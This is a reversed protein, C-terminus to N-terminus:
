CARSIRERIIAILGFCTPATKVYIKINKKFCSEQADTPLYFVRVVEVTVGNRLLMFCEGGKPSSIHLRASVAARHGADHAASSNTWMNWDAPWYGAIAGCEVMETVVCFMFTEAFCVAYMDFLKYSEAHLYVFQSRRCSTEWAVQLYESIEFRMKVSGFYIPYLITYKSLHADINWFYTLLQM